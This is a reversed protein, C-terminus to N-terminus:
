PNIRTVEAFVAAGPVAATIACRINCEPLVFNGIGVATLTTNAGVNVWSGGPLQVQLAVTAGNISSTDVMFSGDGGRWQFSAGTATNGSQGLLKQNISNSM